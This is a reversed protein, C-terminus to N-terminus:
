IYYYYFPSQVFNLSKEVITLIYMKSRILFLSIIYYIILENIICLLLNQLHHSLKKVRFQTIADRNFFTQTFVYHSLVVYQSNILSKFRCCKCGQLNISRMYIFAFM